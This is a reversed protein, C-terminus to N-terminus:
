QDASEDVWVRIQRDKETVHVIDGRLTGLTEVAADINLTEGVGSLLADLVAVPIDARVTETGAEEAVRVEVREGVRAVRVNTEGQQLTVFETDGVDRLEHWLDRLASVSVGHEPGVQLQGNAVVTNPAMSLVATVAGLPLNVGGNESGPDSNAIEVHLWPKPEGLEQTM